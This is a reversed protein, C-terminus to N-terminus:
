CLLFINRMNQFSSTWSCLALQNLQQQFGEEQNTSMWKRVADECPTYLSLEPTEESLTVLGIPDPSVKHGWEIKTVEMCAKDGFITMNCTSAEVHSNLPSLNWGCCGWVEGDPNDIPFGLFTM